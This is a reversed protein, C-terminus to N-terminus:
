RRPTPHLSVGNINIGSIASIALSAVGPSDKMRDGILTVVGLGYEIKMEDDFGKAGGPREGQRKDRHQHDYRRDYQKRV